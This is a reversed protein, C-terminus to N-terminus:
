EDTQGIEYLSIIGEHKLQAVSRAERLFRSAEERTALSGARQIKVAVTRDVETDRARFVYGFSGSGLVEQLEFKGLRCHGAALQQAYRRGCDISIESTAGNASLVATRRAVAILEEPPAMGEADSSDKLDRLGAVLGDAHHDFAQLLAECDHCREVHAAIDDFAAGCLNGVAFAKLEDVRPCPPSAM